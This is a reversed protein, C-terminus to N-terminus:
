LPGKRDKWPFSQDVLRLTIFKAIAGELPRDRLGLLKTGQLSTEIENYFFDALQAEKGAPPEPHYRDFIKELRRADQLSKSKGKGVVIFISLQSRLARHSMAQRMNLGRFAWPPSLLVLAKVDQGQKGTALPPWSWDLRAWELAVAAGMEAGVVCLKEINLEGANNKAMLFGKLTEMDDEVMRSFGRPPLSRADLPRTSGEVRISDGHARLDLVLVAHGLSQLLPALENYDSRSGKWMHLLIVPVSEKGKTGPYFTAKLLVGDRSRLDVDEPPPIKEEQEEGAPKSPPAKKTATKSPDGPEDQASASVVGTLFVLLFAALLVPQCWRRPCLRESMRPVPLRGPAYGCPHGPTRLLFPFAAM